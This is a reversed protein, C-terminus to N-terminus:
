KKKLSFLKFKMGRKEKSSELLQTRKSPKYGMPYLNGLLRPTTDFGNKEMKQFLRKINAEHTFDMVDEALLMYSLSTIFPQAWFMVIVIFIGFIVFMIGGMEISFFGSFDVNIFFSVFVIIASIGAIGKILSQAWISIPEIDGPSRYTKSERYFVIGADDLLSSGAILFSFITFSLVMPLTCLLTYGSIFSFFETSGFSTFSQSYGLIPAMTNYFYFGVAISLLTPLIVRKLKNIKGLEKREGMDLVVIEKNYAKSLRFFLERLKIIFFAFYPSFHNYVAATLPLFTYWLISVVVFVIAIQSFSEGTILTLNFVDIQILFLLFSITILTIGITDVVLTLKNENISKKINFRLERSKLILIIVGLILFAICLITLPLGFIFRPSNWLSIPPVMAIVMVKVNSVGVIDRIGDNNFDSFIIGEEISERLNMIGYVENHNLANVITYRKISNSAYFPQFEDYLLLDKVSDGNMDSDLVYTPSRSQPSTLKRWLENFEGQEISYVGTWSSRNSETSSISIVIYTFNDGVTTPIENIKVNDFDKGSTIIDYLQYILMGDTGNIIMAGGSANALFLESIGNGDLDEIVKFDQIKFSYDVATKVEFINTSYNDQSTLNILLLKDSEVYLLHLIGGYNFLEIRPRADNDDFEEVNINDRIFKKYKLTGNIYYGTISENYTEVDYDYNYELCILDEVIDETENFYVLDSIYYNTFNKSDIGYDITLESGDIGSILHNSNNDPIPDTHYSFGEEDYKPEKTFNSPNKSRCVFFDKITDNDYDFIQFVRKVPNGYENKWIENGTAGSLVHISGFNPKNNDGYREDGSTVDLYCAIDSIGDNDMDDIVITHVEGPHTNSIGEWVWGAQLDMQTIFLLSLSGFIILSISLLLLNISNRKPEKMGKNRM